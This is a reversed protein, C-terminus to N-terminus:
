HHGRGREGAATNPPGPSEPDRPSVLVGRKRQPKGEPSELDSWRGGQGEPERTKPEQRKWRSGLAPKM